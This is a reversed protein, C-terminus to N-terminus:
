LPDYYESLSELAQGHKLVENEDQQLIACLYAHLHNATKMVIEQDADGELRISRWYLSEELRSFHGALKEEIQFLFEIGEYPVPQVILHVNRQSDLKELDARVDDLSGQQVFAVVAFKHDLDKFEDSKM